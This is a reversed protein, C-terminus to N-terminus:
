TTPVSSNRKLIAASILSILLGVPFIELFTMGAKVFVNNNYLDVFKVLEDIQEDIKEQTQGSNQLQEINAAVYQEMFADGTASSYSMWGAIYIASAVLTIYIGLQLAKGFSIAGNLQKDRHVKIGIFITSFAVIMTLYGMWEGSDLNIQEGEMMGISILMVGTIVAGSILGFTLAIKKM